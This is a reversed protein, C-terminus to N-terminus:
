MFRRYMEHQVIIDTPCGQHWAWQGSGPVGGDYKLAADLPSILACEYLFSIFHGRSSRSPHIVENVALPVLKVQVRAGLEAAAVASIREAMTEKYRVIGGPVHWGPGYYADHRWTLLTEHQENRILLDVNVLPTIRSVFLFLEEPLGDSPHNVLSELLQIAPGIDM